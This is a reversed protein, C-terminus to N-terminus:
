SQLMAVGAFAVLLVSKTKEPMEPLLMLPLAILFLLAGAHTSGRAAWALIPTSRTPTHPM